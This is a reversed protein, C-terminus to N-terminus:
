QFRTSQEIRREPACSLKGRTGAVPLAVPARKTSDGIVVNRSCATSFELRTEFKQGSWLAHIEGLILTEKRAAPRPTPVFKMLSVTIRVIALRAVRRTPIKHMSRLIELLCPSLLYLNTPIELSVYSCLRRPENALPQVRDTRDVSVTSCQLRHLSQLLPQKIKERLLDSISHSYECLLVQFQRIRLTKVRSISGVHLCARTVGM